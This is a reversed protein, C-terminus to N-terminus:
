WTGRHGYYTVREIHRAGTAVMTALCARTSAICVRGQVSLRVQKFLWGEMKADAEAHPGLGTIAPPQKM